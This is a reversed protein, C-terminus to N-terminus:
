LTSFSILVGVNLMCSNAIIWGRQEVLECTVKIKDATTNKDSETELTRHTKDSCGFAVRQDFSGSKALLRDHICPVVIRM